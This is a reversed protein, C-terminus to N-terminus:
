ACFFSLGTELPELSFCGSPVHLLPFIALHDSPTFSNGSSVPAAPYLLADERESGAAPNMGVMKCYIYTSYSAGAPWEYMWHPSFIVVM